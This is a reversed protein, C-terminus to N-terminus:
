WVVLFLFSHFISFPPQQQFVWLDIYVFNKKTEAIWFHLIFYFHLFSIVCLQNFPIICYIYHTVYVMALKLEM